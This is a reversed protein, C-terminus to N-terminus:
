VVLSPVVLDIGKLDAKDIELALAHAVFIYSLYSKDRGIQTGVMENEDIALEATFNGANNSGKLQPSV